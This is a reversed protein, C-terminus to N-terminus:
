PLRLEFVAGGGAADYLRCDGRHAAAVAHCLQSGLGTSPPVAQETGALGPGDDRVSFVIGATDGAACALTVATHAFRMANQIAADLALSVLHEDFFALTPAHRSEVRLAVGDRRHLNDALVGRLFDEPSVAEVRPELGSTSARYLTLFGILKERLAGCTRWALRAREREPETSLAELEGELVSLANKIDHVILAVTQNNM